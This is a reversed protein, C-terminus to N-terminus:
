QGVRKLGKEKSESITPMTRSSCTSRWLTPCSPSRRSKTPSEDVRRQALLLNNASAWASVMHRARSARAECHRGDIAVFEVSTLGAISSVWAAYGKEFEAPDLASIV